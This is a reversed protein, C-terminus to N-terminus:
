SSMMMLHGSSSVRFPLDQGMRYLPDARQTDCTTYMRSLVKSSAQARLRLM